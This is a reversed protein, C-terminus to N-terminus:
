QISEIELIIPLMYKEIEEATLTKVGNSAKEEGEIFYYTFERKSAYLVEGSLNTEAVTGGKTMFTITKEAIDYIVIDKQDTFLTDPMSDKPGLAFIQKLDETTSYSLTWPQMSQAGAVLSTFGLLVVLLIKM